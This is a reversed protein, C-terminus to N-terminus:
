KFYSLIETFVISVFAVFFMFYMTYLGMDTLKLTSPINDPGTYGTINLVEGSGMLYSILVIVGIALVGFLTYIRKRINTIFFFLPFLVATVAATIVLIYSWALFPGESLVDMYYLAGLIASIGLLVYSLYSIYKLINKM